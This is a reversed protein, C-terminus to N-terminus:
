AIPHSPITPDSFRGSAQPTQPPLLEVQWIMEPM